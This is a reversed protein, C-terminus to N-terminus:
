SVNQCSGVFDDSFGIITEVRHRLQIDCLHQLIRCVETKVPEELEMKLLGRQSPDAFLCVLDFEM